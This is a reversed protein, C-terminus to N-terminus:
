GMEYMGLALRSNMTTGRTSWDLSVQPTISSPGHLTMYFLYVSDSYLVKDLFIELISSIRKLYQERLVCTHVHMHVIISSMYIYMIIYKCTDENEFVPSNQVRYFDHTYM